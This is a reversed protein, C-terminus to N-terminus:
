VFYNLAAKLAHQQQLRAFRNDTALLRQQLRKRCRRMQTTWFMDAVRGLIFTFPISWQCFWRLETSGCEWWEFWFGNGVCCIYSLVLYLAQRNRAANVESIEKNMQLLSRQLEAESKYEIALLSGRAAAVM